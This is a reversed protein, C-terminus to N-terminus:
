VLDRSSGLIAVQQPLHNGSRWPRPWQQAKDQWSHQIWMLTSHCALGQQKKAHMRNRKLIVGLVIDHWLGQGVLYNEVLISWNEYNDKTVVVLVIGTSAIGVAAM